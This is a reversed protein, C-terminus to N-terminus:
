FKKGTVMAYANVALDDSTVMKKGSQKELAMKWQYLPSLTHKVKNVMEAFQGSREYDEAAKQSDWITVSIVQNNQGVKELLCAYRCGETALLAPIIQQTYVKKNEVLKEKQLTVSVIRVYLGPIPDLLHSNDNARASVVYQSLIPAEPVPKYELELEDSLQVKWEASEAFYPQLKSLLTQYTQSRNYDEARAQSEWITISIFEHARTQNQILGAFLCGPLQQLEPIIAEEYHKRFLELFRKNIKLQLLRMFM